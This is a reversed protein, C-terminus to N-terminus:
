SLDFGANSSIAQLLKQRLVHENKYRPLKLLNVCTSATPLRTQDNGSDRICFLPVLEKFGLLPPRSCSTVFRLLQRKQTADFSKVVKWFAVITEENDDYVGGYNTNHRLDDIDVDANVGAVLIQLEQQNFMRLWKPDIIESLGEFFATSQKRIQRSLRHHCVLHIYQLRNERTVPINSGNPILDITRTVGFDDENITFNLALDELNGQYHKLFILGNYLERDLSALDDLFSQKSLWKALFFSAFAVEVLIGQYLAKGLIRGVFRYWNLHHPETAISMPNPYLEHQSTTLWLGRDANFVEKSLSTLFEKFVGGGDIGAEEQGFQDVFVISLSGKLAPGLDNLHDFGDEAIRDRRIVIRRTGHGHYRDDFGLRRRDNWIFARFISVRVEFPLSFPINHLVGLRPSMFAIQRKRPQIADPLTLETDEIVAAEVFSAVDIQSTLLWHDQPTFQRRSDRAHVSQLFLTSDARVGEWRMSLGPVFGEKVDTQDENWYLMFAVNLAKKSLAAVEDLTLPNRPAGPASFFEEDGMTLLMQTYVQLLFIFPPWHSANGPDTLLRADVDRGIPSARVFARWLTKVLEGGGQAVAEGLIRRRSGPWLACANSLLAYVGPVRDGLKLLARLHAQALLNNIRTATKGDIQRLLSGTMGASPDPATYEDDSDIERAIAITAQAPPEELSTPPLSGVLVNLLNLYAQLSQKALTEYRAVPMFTSLNALVHVRTLPPLSNVLTASDVTELSTLPISHTFAGISTIPIRNPLLPLAMIHQLFQTQLTTYEASTPSYIAFPRTSLVSLPPLSPSKRSSVSIRNFATAILQVFDRACVYDSVSRSIQPGIDSLLKQMDSQSLLTNLLSMHTLAYQSEPASAISQVLLASVRRVLVLWSENAASQFPQILASYNDRTMVASWSGLRDESIGGFVLCRTWSVPEGASGSDFAARLERRVITAAVMARWWAQIIAASDQRRKANIREERRAKAADLIDIHSTATPVGGLNIRKRREDGFM